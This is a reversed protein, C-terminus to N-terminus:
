GLLGPVVEGYSLRVPRGQLDHMEQRHEIGLCHLITAALDDPTVADRSPYGGDKTSAGYCVGAAAGGGALGISQCFGWHDRGGQRNIVPTRGFEGFWTVLTTDLLGRERLDDLFASLARDFYPLLHDKMRVHQNTHTDWSQNDTNRPSNWYVSVFPVGSEVLRRALVLSQAFHHHGYRERIAPPERSLDFAEETQPSQLLDIARRWSSDVAQGAPQADLHAAHASLAAQLGVRRGLRERSVGEGLALAPWRFDPQTLDGLVMLPEHADGLFGAGQGPVPLGDGDNVIGPLHVHAPLYPPHRLYQAASCGLNPVDERTPHRLTGPSRHIHGTLMHYSSTGHNVGTHALSRVISYQHARAALQPLHECIQTGPVSTAIPKFDGRTGAPADPKLDWTEQAGPGGWLFLVVAAKAKGFGPPRDASSAPAAARERAAMLRPWSLGLGALSGVTLWQRRTLGDCLKMGHHHLQLM